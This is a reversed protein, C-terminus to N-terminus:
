AEKVHSLASTGQRSIILLSCYGYPKAEPKVKPRVRRSFRPWGLSTLMIGYLHFDHVRREGPKGSEGQCSDSQPQQCGAGIHGIRRGAGRQMLDLGFEA